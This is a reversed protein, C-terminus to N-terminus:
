HTGFRELAFPALQSPKVGSCIWSALQRAVAPAIAWGHGCWGVGFYGNSIAPVRDIIPIGDICRSEAREVSVADIEHEALEPYLYIAEQWNGQVQAEVAVPAGTTPDITGRWGGSVM